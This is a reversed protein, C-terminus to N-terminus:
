RRERVGRPRLRRLRGRAGIDRKGGADVGAVLDEEGEIVRCRLLKGGGGDIRGGLWSWWGCGFNGRIQLIERIDEGLGEGIFEGGVPPVEIVGNGQFFSGFRLEAGDVAEGFDFELDEFFVDFGVEFLTKNAWGRGGVAGGDQKHFFGV